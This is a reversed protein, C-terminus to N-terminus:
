SAFKLQHMCVTKAYWRVLIYDCSIASKMGPTCHAHTDHCVIKYLKFMHNRFYALPCLFLCDCEDYYTGSVAGTLTFYYVFPLQVTICTHWSLSFVITSMIVVSFHAFQDLELCTAYYNHQCTVRV